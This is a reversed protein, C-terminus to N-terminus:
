KAKPHLKRYFKVGNYLANMDSREIFAARVWDGRTVSFELSRTLVLRRATVTVPELEEENPFGFCLCGQTEMKAGRPAKAHEKLVALKEIAEELTSGLPIFLIFVPDFNVQVVDTGVGLNGVQLYYQDKDPMHFVQIETGDEHEVSVIETFQQLLKESLKKEQASALVPMVAFLLVALSKFLTKM